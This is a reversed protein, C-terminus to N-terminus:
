KHNSTKLRIAENLKELYEEEEMSGNRNPLNWIRMLASELESETLSDGGREKHQVDSDSGSKKYTPPETWEITCPLNRRGIPRKLTIQGCPVQSFPEMQSILSAEVQATLELIGIQNRKGLVPYYAYCRKGIGKKCLVCNRNTCPWSRNAAFHVFCRLPSGTLKAEVFGGAKARLLPIQDPQDPKPPTKLWM